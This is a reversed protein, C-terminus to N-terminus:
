RRQSGIALCNNIRPELRPQFFHSVLSFPLTVTLETSIQCSCRPIPAIFRDLRTFVPHRKLNRVIEFLHKSVPPVVASRFRYTPTEQTIARNQHFVVEYRFGVRMAAGFTAPYVAM